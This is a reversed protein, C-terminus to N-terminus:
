ADVVPLELDGAVVAVPSGDVELVLRGHEDLTRAVGHTVGGPTRVRVATGWFRARTRWADLLEPAGHALADWWPEFAGLFGAAVEEPTATVGEAALSTAPLADDGLAEPHNAVNVGMSLVVATSQGTGRREALIGSVKRGGILVDNPWKLTTQAGHAALAADLALGAALPLLHLPRSACGDALLLSMALNGRPTSWSRGSRGRGRTQVAATVLTGHAAGRAHGAWAEDITSGVEDFSVLARGLTRTRLHRHFAAADFAPDAL